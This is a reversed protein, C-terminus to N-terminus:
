RAAAAAYRSGLQRYEIGECRGTPVQDVDGTEIWDIAVIVIQLLRRLEMKGVAIM